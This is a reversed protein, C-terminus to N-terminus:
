ESIFQAVKVKPYRKTRPNYAERFNRSVTQASVGLFKAVEKRQLAEKDPFAADLRDLTERFAPKERPM